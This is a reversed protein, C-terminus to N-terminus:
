VLDSIHKMHTDKKGSRTRYIVLIRSFSYESQGDIAYKIDILQDEQLTALFENARQEALVKLSDNFEKVQIV